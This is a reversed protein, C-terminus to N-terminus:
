LPCQSQSRWARERKPVQADNWVAMLRRSKIYETEKARAEEETPFHEVLVTEVDVWWCNQSHQTLRRAWNKSYGVYLLRYGADYLRYVQYQSNAEAAQM